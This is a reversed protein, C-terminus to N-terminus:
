GPRPGDEDAAQAIRTRGAGLGAAEDEELDDTPFGARADQRIEQGSRLTLILFAPQKVDWWVQEVTDALV